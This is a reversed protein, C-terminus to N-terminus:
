LERSFVFVFNKGVRKVRLVHCTCHYIDYQTDDVREYRTGGDWCFQFEDFIGGPSKRITVTGAAADYDGFFSYDWTRGFCDMTAADLDVTRFIYEEELVDFELNPNYHLIHQYTLGGLRCCWMLLDKRSLDSVSDFRPLDFATDMYHAFLEDSAPPDVARTEAIACGSCTRAEVGQELTTPAKTQSWSGFSHGTATLVETYSNGCSCTYVKKGDATCTAPTTKAVYNHTHGTTNSVKAITINDIYFIGTADPVMAQLGLYLNTNSGSNFTASVTQWRDAAVYYNVNKVQDALWSNISVVARIRCNPKNSLVDFTLTYDTDPEVVFASKDVCYEYKMGYAFKLAQTGGAKNAVPLDTAKIIGITSTDGNGAWNGLGNEFNCTYIVNNHGGSTTTTTSGTPNTTTGTPNTTTGTPNTTTGTPNTTTGTPNTTPTTTPATTADTVDSPVDEAAYNAVIIYQGNVLEVVMVNDTSRVEGQYEVLYTVAFHTDDMQQYGRYQGSGVGIGMGAHCEEIVTNAAADYTYNFVGWLSQGDVEFYDWTRGLTKTTYADLDSVAYTRRLLAGEEVTEIPEVGGLWCWGLVNLADLQDVSDFYALSPINSTYADLVQELTLHLAERYEYCGCATCRHSEQLGVVHWEGWTHAAPLVATYTDGCACTYVASGDETCSAAQQVEEVYAHVHASPQTDVQTQATPADEGGNSLIVAATGGGIAIIAAAVGAAVKAVLPIAAIKAGIGVAAGVTAATAATSATTATVALTVGTAASVGEAVLGASAAPASHSLDGLVWRLLPLATLGHLKVGHKEEYDEVSKKIGKRAYNLRSKVTNESVGQIEAIQKVSMEDYYFMLVAARQEESLDDLMALITKKFEDQDLAEDPIFDTKDEQVTDFLTNGDEDEDVIVDKKKKFYRTCQHYTIQKMWKVFAAPEQLNGITRIIEVFAEQTVDCAIEDDKLTKLAFYYVDNYFASFLENLAGNDGNQAATVLSILKEREM